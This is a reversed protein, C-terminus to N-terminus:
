RPKSGALKKFVPNMVQNALATDFYESQRRIKGDEIEHLFHYCNNYDTGDMTVAYGEVMTAVRNEEETMQVIEHKFGGPVATQLQVLLGAFQQATLRNRPMSQSMIRFEVDKHCLELLRNENLTFAANLFERVLEKQSM